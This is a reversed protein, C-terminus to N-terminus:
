SERNESKNRNASTINASTNSTSSAAASEKASRLDMVGILRFGFDASRRRSLCAPREPKIESETPTEARHWHTPERDTM